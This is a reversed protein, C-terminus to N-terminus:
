SDVYSDDKLYLASNNEPDWDICTPEDLIWGINNWHCDSPILETTCDQLRDWWVLLEDPDRVLTLLADREEMELFEEMEEWNGIDLDFLDDILDQPIVEACESIYTKDTTGYTARLACMDNLYAAEQSERAAQAEEETMYRKEIWKGCRSIRTQYCLSGNAETWPKWKM